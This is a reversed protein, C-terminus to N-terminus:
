FFSGIFIALSILAILFLTFIVLIYAIHGWFYFIKYKIQLQLVEFNNKNSKERKIKKCYFFILIFAALLSLLGILPLAIKLGISLNNSQSFLVGM